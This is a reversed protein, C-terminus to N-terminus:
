GISVYPAFVIGEISFQQVQAYTNSEKNMCCYEIEFVKRESDYHEGTSNVGWNYWDPLSLLTPDVRGREIADGVRRYVFVRNAGDGGYVCNCVLETLGDGDLDVQQDDPEFNFSEAIQREGDDTKIYYRRTYHHPAAEYEEYWGSLGMINSFPMSHRKRLITIREEIWTIREQSLKSMAREFTESQWDLHGRDNWRRYLLEESAERYAGKAGIVYMMLKYNSFSYIDEVSEKNYVIGLSALEAATPSISDIIEVFMLRKNYKSEVADVIVYQVAVAQGVALQSGYPRITTDDCLTAVIEEEAGTEVYLLSQGSNEMICIIKGNVVESIDETTYEVRSNDRNIEEKEGRARGIVMTLILVAGIIVSVRYGNIRKKHKFFYM